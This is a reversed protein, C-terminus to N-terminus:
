PPPALKKIREILLRVDLPKQMMEVRDAPFAAPVKGKHGILIVAPQPEGIALQVDLLTTLQENLPVDCVIISPGLQQVSGQAEDNTAVCTVDFRDENRLGAKLLMQLRDDETIVLVNSFYGRLLGETPWHNSRLFALMAHTPIRRFRSGAVRAGPINGVDFQRIITQQSHGCVKAAQGTTLFNKTRTQSM